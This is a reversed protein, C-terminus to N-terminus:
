CDRDRLCASYVNRGDYQVYGRRGDYRVEFMLYDKGFIKRYVELDDGQRLVGIIENVREKGRDLPFPDTVVPVGDAMISITERKGLYPWAESLGWLALPIAILALFVYSEIKRRAPM